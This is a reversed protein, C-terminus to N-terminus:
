DHAMARSQHTSVSLVSLQVPIDLILGRPGVPPRDCHGLGDGAGAHDRPELNVLGAPAELDKTNLAELSYFRQRRPHKATGM